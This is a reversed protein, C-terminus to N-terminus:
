LDKYKNDLDTVTIIGKRLDLREQMTLKFTRETSTLIQPGDYHDMKLEPKPLYERGLQIGAKTCIDDWQENSIIGNVMKEVFTRPIVYGYIEVKDFNELDDQTTIIEYRTYGHTEKQPINKTLIDELGLIQEKFVISHFYWGVNVFSSAVAVGNRYLYNRSPLSM